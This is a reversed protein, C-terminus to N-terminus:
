VRNASEASDGGPRREIRFTFCGATTSCVQIYDVDAQAFLREIALEMKGDVVYELGHLRRGRSYAELTRPSTRLEDPVGAQEPYRECSEAHIYIPGPLPLSEADAFRDYTFLIARDVHPAILHLCHRCPAPEALDDIHAPHGYVPARLTTRVSDAVKTPIAVIRIPIM